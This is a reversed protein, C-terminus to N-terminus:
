GKQCLSEDWWGNRVKKMTGNVVMGAITGIGFKEIDGVALVYKGSNSANHVRIYYTGAEYTRNGQFDAGIEPGVWYWTKGYEEYWPWWDFKSGDRGDIRNMNADLVDYSFPTQMTCSDLKAQTIGAYFRFPETSDIRFYQPAGQLESFIAKSHEPDQIVFPSQATYDQGKDNVIPAHANAALPLLTAAVLLLPRLM